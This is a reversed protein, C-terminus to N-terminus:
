ALPLSIKVSACWAASLLAFSVTGVLVEYLLNPRQEGPELAEDIIFFVGPVLSTIIWIPISYSKIVPTKMCFSILLHSGALFLFPIGFAMAYLTQHEAFELTLCSVCAGLFVVMFAALLIFSIGPSFNFIAVCLGLLALAILGLVSIFAAFEFTQTNISNPEIVWEM